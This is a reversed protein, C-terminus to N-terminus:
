IIFFIKFYFYINWLTPPLSFLEYACWASVYCGMINQRIVACDFGWTREWGQTILTAHIWYYIARRHTSYTIRRNSNIPFAFAAHQTVGYHLVLLFWPRRSPETPLHAWLELVQSDSASPDQKEPWDILSVCDKFFFIGPSSQSVRTIGTKSLSLPISRAVPFSPFLPM